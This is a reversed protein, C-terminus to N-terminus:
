KFLSLPNEQVFQKFDVWDQNIILDSKSILKTTKIELEKITLEQGQTVGMNKGYSYSAANQYFSMWTEPQDYYGKVDKKGFILLEIGAISDSLGKIKNM